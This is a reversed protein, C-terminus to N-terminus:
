SATYFASDIRQKEKKLETLIWDPVLNKGMSYNSNAKNGHCDSGGTVILGFKEALSSHYEVLAPSHSRHYAEIGRLGYNMLDKILDEINETERPHAIVAIGKAEYIAETAEHPSVTDRKVYTPTNESIYKVYADTINKCGGRKYLAKAIHPRGICGNPVTLAYIDDMSINIKAINNLKKVYEKAQKLRAKRQKEIVELFFDNNVDMYYGLIHVEGYKWNTNIEVGPIIEVPKGKSIENLEKLANINDHDTVSIAALEDKLAIDFIESPSFSGDSYNSHIHLDIKM